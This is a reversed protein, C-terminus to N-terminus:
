SYLPPARARYALAPRAGAPTVSPAAAVDTLPAVVALGTAASPLAAMGLAMAFACGPTAQHGGADEAKWLTKAGSPTCLVIAVGGQGFAPMFGPAVLGRALVAALLLWLLASPRRAVRHLSVAPNM